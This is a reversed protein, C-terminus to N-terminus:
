LEKPTQGSNHVETKLISLEKPLAELLSTVQTGNKFPIGASDQVRETEYVKETEM